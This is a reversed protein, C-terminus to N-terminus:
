ATYEIIVRKRGDTLHLESIVKAGLMQHIKLIYKNRLDVEGQISRCGLKIMVGKWCSFLEVSKEANKSNPRWAWYECRAGYSVGYQISDEKFGVFRYRKIMQILLKPSAVLAPISALILYIRHEKLSNLHERSDLTGSCFGHIVGNEDESLLIVTKPENILVKYYATLFVLGLQYMFGDPQLSGADFHIKALSKIDKVKALRTHM